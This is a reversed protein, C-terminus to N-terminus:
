QAKMKWKGDVKVLKGENEEEKDNGYTIKMKLDASNGDESINEELIEISKIGENQKLSESGMALMGKFKAKDEDTIEKDGFDMLDMAADYNEKEIAKYFDKVVDGPTNGGGGCSAMFLITGVFLVSLLVSFKKM